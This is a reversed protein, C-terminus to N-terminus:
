LQMDIYEARQYELTPYPLVAKGWFVWEHSYGTTIGVFERAPCQIFFSLILILAIVHCVLIMKLMGPVQMKMRRIVIGGIMVGAAAAFIVVSSLYSAISPTTSLITELIKPM